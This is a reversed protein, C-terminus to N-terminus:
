LPHVTFVAQGDFTLTDPPATGTAEGEVVSGELVYPLLDVGGAITFSFNQVEGPASQFAIEVRPLGSDALASKVFVKIEDIFAFHDVDEGQQETGTISLSLSSLTVRDLPATTQKRIKASLELDLPIPFLGEIPAPIPNGTVSQEPIPQSIDFDTLGCGSAM